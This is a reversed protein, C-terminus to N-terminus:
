AASFSIIYRFPVELTLTKLYLTDSTKRVSNGTGWKLLTAPFLRFCNDLPIRYFLREQFNQFGTTQKGRFKAFDELVIKKEYFVELAQKQFALLLLLRESTNQLFPTRLFKALNAPFCKHRGSDRKLPVSVYIQFDTFIKTKMYFYYTSSKM